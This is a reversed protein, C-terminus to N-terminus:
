KKKEANEVEEFKMIAREETKVSWAWKGFDENSPFRERRPYVKGFSEKEEGIVRRFIEYGFTIIEGKENDGKQEYIFANKGRTHLHYEFGNKGIVKSLEQM